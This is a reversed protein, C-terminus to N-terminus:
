LWLNFCLLGKTAETPACIHLQSGEFVMRATPNLVVNYILALSCIM